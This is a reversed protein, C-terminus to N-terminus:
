RSELCHHQTLKPLYTLQAETKDGPHHLCM